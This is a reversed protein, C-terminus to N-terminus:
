HGGPVHDSGTRQQWTAADVVEQRWAAHCDTCAQLTNALAALVADRDQAQAAVGIADARRHFDLAMETFGPAGMGMHNCMMQMQPSSEILKAAEAIEAWDKRAAGDTIRRVAVLHQMMNQKQHWAMMPQLPVPKRPDMTALAAHADGAPQSAPQSTPSSAPQSTPASAPQSGPSTPTSGTLTGRGVPPATSVPATSVPAAVPTPAPAETPAPSACALTLLGLLPAIRRAFVFCM